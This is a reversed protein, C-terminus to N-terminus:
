AHTALPAGRWVVSVRAVIRHPLSARLRPSRTSNLATIMGACWGQRAGWRTARTATQAITAPPTVARCQASCYVGYGYGGVCKAKSYLAGCFCLYVLQCGIELAINAGALDWRCYICCYAGADGLGCVNVNCHDHRYRTCVKESSCYSRSGCQSDENCQGGDAPRAFSCLVFLLLHSM